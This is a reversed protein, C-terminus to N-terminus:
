FIIRFTKLLKKPSHKEPFNQQFNKPLDIQFTKGSLNKLSTKSFNKRFSPKSFNWSLKELFSNKFFFSRFTKQFHKWIKKKFDIFFFKLFNLRFHKWSVKKRFKKELFNKLVNKRFSKKKAMQLSKNPVKLCCM